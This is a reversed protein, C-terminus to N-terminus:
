PLRVRIPGKATSPDVARGGQTMMVRGESQLRRAAARAPESLPQWSDGGVARAADSPSISAGRPQDALLSLITTELERDVPRVGRRRCAQSCHRVEDWSREWKKRWVMQRGCAVCVKQAPGAMPRSYCRATCGVRAGQVSWTGSTRREVACAAEPSEEGYRAWRQRRHSGRNISGTM